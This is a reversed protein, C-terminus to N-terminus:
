AANRRGPRTRRRPAAGSRHPRRPPRPGSASGREAGATASTSVRRPGDIADSPGIGHAGDQDPASERPVARYAWPLCMMCRILVDAARTATAPSTAASSPAAGPLGDVALGDLTCPAGEILLSGNPDVASPGTSRYVSVFADPIRTRM